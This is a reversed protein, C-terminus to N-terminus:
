PLDENPFSIEWQGNPLQEVKPKYQSHIVTDRPDYGEEPFSFSNNCLVSLWVRTYDQWTKTTVTVVTWELTVKAPQIYAHNDYSEANKLLEAFENNQAGAQMALAIGLCIMLKKM